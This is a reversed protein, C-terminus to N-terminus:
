RSGEWDLTFGEDEQTDRVISRHDEQVGEVESVTGGVDERAFEYSIVDVMGFEDTGQLEVVVETQYEIVGAREVDKIPHAVVGCVHGVLIIDSTVRDFSNGGDQLM